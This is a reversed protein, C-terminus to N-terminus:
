GNIRGKRADLSHSSSASRCAAAQALEPLVRLAKSAKLARNAAFLSSGNPRRGLLAQPFRSKMHRHAQRATKVTVELFGPLVTLGQSVACLRWGTLKLVSFVKNLLSKIRARATLEPFGLPGLSGQSV